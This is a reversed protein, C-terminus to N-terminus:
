KLFNSKIVCIIGILFELESLPLIRESWWEEENWIGDGLTLGKELWKAIYEKRINENVYM